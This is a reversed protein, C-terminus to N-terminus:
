KQAPQQPADPVKVDDFNDQGVARITYLDLLLFVL